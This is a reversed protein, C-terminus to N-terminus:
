IQFLELHTIFYPLLKIILKKKKLYFMFCHCIKDNFRLNRSINTVTMYAVNTSSHTSSFNRCFTNGFFWLSLGPFAVNDTPVAAWFTQKETSLNIRFCICINYEPFETSHLPLSYM